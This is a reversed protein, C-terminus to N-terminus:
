PPQKRKCFVRKVLRWFTTKKKQPASCPDEKTIPQPPQTKSALPPDALNPVLTANDEPATPITDTKTAPAITDSTPPADLKAVKSVPPADEKPVPPRDEKPPVIRIRQGYHGVRYHTCPASFYTERRSAAVKPPLDEVGFAATSEICELQPCKTSMSAVFDANADRVVLRKVATFDLFRRRDSMRRPPFFTGRSAGVLLPPPPSTYAFTFHVDTLCDPYLEGFFGTLVDREMYWYWYTPLCDVLVFHLSTIKPMWDIIVTRLNSLPIGSYPTRESQWGMYM